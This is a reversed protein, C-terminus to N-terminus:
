QHDYIKTQYWDFRCYHYINWRNNMKERCPAIQRSTWAWISAVFLKGEELENEVLGGNREQIQFLLTEVWSFSLFSGQQREWCFHILPVLACFALLVSKLEIKVQLLYHTELMTQVFDWTTAKCALNTTDYKQTWLKEERVWELPWKVQSKWTFIKLKPIPEGTSDRLIISSVSQTVLASDTRNLKLSFEVKLKEIWKLLVKNLFDCSEM